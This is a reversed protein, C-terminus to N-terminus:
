ITKGGKKKQNFDLHALPNPEQTLGSLSGPKKKKKKKKKSFFFVPDPKPNFYVWVWHGFVSSEIQIHTQFGVRIRLEGVWSYGFGLRRGKPNRMGRQQREEHM